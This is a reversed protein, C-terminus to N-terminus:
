ESGCADEEKLPTPHQGYMKALDELGAVNPKGDTDRVTLDPAVHHLLDFLHGLADENHGGVICYRLADLKEALTLIPTGHQETCEYKRAQPVFRLTYTM